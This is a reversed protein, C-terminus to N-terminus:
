LHKLTVCANMVRKGYDSFFQNWKRYDLRFKFEGIEDVNRNYHASCRDSTIVLEKPTLYFGFYDISELDFAFRPCDTYLELMETYYERELSDLKQHKLISDATERAEKIMSKQIQTLTDILTSVMNPKILEKLNIKKGTTLDFNYRTEHLECYAGCAEGSIMVSYFKDNLIHIEYDIGLHKGMMENENRKLVEFINKRAKMYDLDLESKSIYSNIRETINKNGGILLPFRSSNFPNSDTYKVVKIGIKQATTKMSLSCIILFFCFYKKM